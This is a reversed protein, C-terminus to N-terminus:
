ATPRENNMVEECLSFYDFSGRSKPAYDIVSMGEGCASNIKTNIRIKTSFVKDQFHQKTLSLIEKSINNRVDYKTALVGTIEVQHELEKILDITDLLQAIGELAFPSMDIPILVESCAMLANVTLIGLSPPCDILIFDYGNINSESIAKNLAMNQLPTGILEREASSLDLNAPALYLNELYTQLVIDDLAMGNSLVDYISCNLNYREIGIGITTNSQPDLDVLLVTKGRKALAAGLNITTVTKSSGGKQNCIAIKRM